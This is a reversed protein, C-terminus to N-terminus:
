KLGARRATLWYTKHVSDIRDEYEPLEKAVWRLFERRVKDDPQKGNLLLPQRSNVSAKMGSMVARREKGTRGAILRERLERAKVHDGALLAENLRSYLARKETQVPTSGSWVRDYEYGNMEAFKRAAARVVRVDKQADAIKVDYNDADMFRMVRTSVGDYTRVLAFQGAFGEISDIAADFKADVPDDSNLLHNMNGVFEFSDNAMSWVPPRIPNKWKAPRTDMPNLIAQWDGLIGFGGDYILNTYVRDGLGFILSDDKTSSPVIFEDREDDYFLSRLLTAYLEGQAMMLFMSKYLGTMNRVKKTEGNPMKIETGKFAPMLVNKWFDRSRQFGWKQFQFLIRGGASDLWLPHQRVDYSYQKENIMDRTFDRVAKGHENWHGDTGKEFLADIQDQSYGLRTITAIAQQYETSEPDQERLERARRLYQKALTGTVARNLKESTTQMWLGYKQAVTMGKRYKAEYGTRVVDSSTSTVVSTYWDNRLFGLTDVDAMGEYASLGKGERISNFNTTAVDIMAKTSEWFTNGIGFVEANARLAFTTNRISTLPGSLMTVAAVPLGLRSLTSLIGDEDTGRQGEVSKRLKMLYEKGKKGVDKAAYDWSTMPRDAVGQGMHRILAMRQSFRSVYSAYADFTFDYFQDPLKFGRAKEMNAVFDSPSEVSNISGAMERLMDGAKEYSSARGSDVMAKKMKAFEEPHQYPESIIEWTEQTFVRPFFEEYMLKVPRWEGDDQVLVGKGYKSGQNDHDSMMYGQSRGNNRAWLIMAKGAESAKEELFLDAIGKFRKQEEPTGNRERLRWYEEFEVKGREMMRSGQAEFKVAYADQVNMKNEEAWAWGHEPTVFYLGRRVKDKGEIRPDKVGVLEYGGDKIVRLPGSWLEGYIDDRDQKARNIRNALQNFGAKKLTDTVAWSSPWWWRWSLQDRKDTVPTNEKVNESEGNPASHYNASGADHEELNAGFKLDDDIEQAMSNVTMMKKSASNILEDIRETDIRGGGGESKGRKSLVGNQIARAIRGEPVRQAIDLLFDQMDSAGRVEVPSLDYGSETFSRMSERNAGSFADLVISEGLTLQLKDINPIEGEYIRELENLNDYYDASSGKNGFASWGNATIHHRNAYDIIDEAPSIDSDELDISRNRQRIAANQGVFKHQYYEMFDDAYQKRLSSDKFPALRIRYTGDEQPKVGREEVRSEALKEISEASM